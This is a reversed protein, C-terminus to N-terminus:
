KLALTITAATYAFMLRREVLDKLRDDNTEALIENLNEAFAADFCDIVEYLASELACTYNELNIIADAATSCIMPESLDRVRRSRESQHLCEVLDHYNTM